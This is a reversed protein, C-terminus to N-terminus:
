LTNYATWHAHWRARNVVQSLAFRRRKLGCQKKRENWQFARCSPNYHCAEACDVLTVVEITLGAPRRVFSLSLSFRLTTPRSNQM